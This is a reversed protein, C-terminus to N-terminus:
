LCFLVCRYDEEDSSISDSEKGLLESYDLSEDQLVGAAHEPTRQTLFLPDNLLSQYEDDFYEDLFGLDEM